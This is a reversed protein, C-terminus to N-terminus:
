ERKGKEWKSILYKNQNLYEQILFQLVDKNSIHGEFNSGHRIGKRVLEMGRDIEGGTEYFISRRPTGKLEQKKFLSM